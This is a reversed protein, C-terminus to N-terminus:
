KIIDNISKYNVGFNKLIDFNRWNFIDNILNDSRNALKVDGNNISKNIFELDSASITKYGDSYYVMGNISFKFITDEENKSIQQIDNTKNRLRYKLSLSLSKSKSHDFDANLLNALDIIYQHYKDKVPTSAGGQDGSILRNNPSYTVVVHAKNNKDFLAIMTADKDSSMWSVSGCNSLQDGTLPCKKGVDIWKFGDNYIKIPERDNFIRKEEYKHLADNFSLQKYYSLDKIKNNIIDEVISYNFFYDDLFMDEIEKKLIDRQEQLYYDDLQEKDNIYLGLCNITKIYDKVSFSSQYLNTLDAISPKGNGMFHNWWKANDLNLFNKEEKFWKAILSAKNGFNKYLINVVVEPYGLSVIGVKSETLFWNKFSNLM